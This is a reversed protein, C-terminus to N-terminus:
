LHPIFFSIFFSIYFVTLSFTFKMLLVGSFILIANKSLKTNEIISAIPPIKVLLIEIIESERWLKPSEIVM